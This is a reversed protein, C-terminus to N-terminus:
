CLGDCCCSLARSLTIRLSWPDATARIVSCGYWTASGSLASCFRFLAFLCHVAFYCQHSSSGAMRISPRYWLRLWSLSVCCHKPTVALVQPSCPRRSVEQMGGSLLTGPAVLKPSSVEETCYVTYPVTPFLMGRQGPERLHAHLRIVTRGGDGCVCYLTQDNVV